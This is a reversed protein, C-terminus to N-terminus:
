AARARRAANRAWVTVLLTGLPGVLVVNWAPLFLFILAATSGRPQVLGVWVAWTSSALTALLWGVGQRRFKSYAVLAGIVVPVLNWLLLSLLFGSPGAERLGVAAVYLHPILSLLTLLPRM